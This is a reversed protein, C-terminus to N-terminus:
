GEAQRDNGGSVFETDTHKLRGTCWWGWEWFRWWGGGGADHYEEMKKIERARVGLLSSERM